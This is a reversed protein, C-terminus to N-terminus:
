DSDEPDASRMDRIRPDMAHEVIDLAGPVSAMALWSMVAVPIDERNNVWKLVRERPVGYYKAFWGFSRGLHELADKLQQGTIRDYEYRKSVPAVATLLLTEM